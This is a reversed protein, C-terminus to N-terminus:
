FRIMLEAVLDPQYEYKGRLIGHIHPQYDQALAISNSYLALFLIVSTKGITMFLAM